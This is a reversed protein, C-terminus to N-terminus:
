VPQLWLRRGTFAFGEFMKETAWTRIVQTYYVVGISFHVHKKNRNRGTREKVFATRRKRGTKLVAPAPLLAFFLRRLGQTKKDKMLYKQLVIRSDEQSLVFCLRTGIFSLPRNVLGGQM